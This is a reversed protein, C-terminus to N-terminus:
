VNELSEGKLYRSARALWDPRSEVVGLALNCPDCLLGRNCRGCTPKAVCCGHDHDVGLPRAGVAGCIACVGGQRELAALYTERSMGYFRKINAWRIREGDYEARRRANIAEANASYRKRRTENVREPNAKQWAVSAALHCDKCYSSRGLAYRRDAKFLALDKEVGCRRCQKLIASM